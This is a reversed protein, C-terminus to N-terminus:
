MGRNAYAAFGTGDFHRPWGYHRGPRRGILSVVRSFHRPATLGARALARRPFPKPTRWRTCNRDEKSHPPRSLFFVRRDAQYDGDAETWISHIGDRNWYRKHARLVTKSPLYSASSSRLSLCAPFGRFPTFGPSKGRASLRLAASLHLGHDRIAGRSQQEAVLSIGRFAWCM